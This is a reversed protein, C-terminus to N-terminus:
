AGIVRCYDAEGADQEELLIVFPSEVPTAHRQFIGGPDDIMGDEAQGAHAVSVM